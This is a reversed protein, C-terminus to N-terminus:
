QVKANAHKRTSWGSTEEEQLQMNAAEECGNAFDYTAEGSDYIDKRPALRTQTYKSDWINRSDDSYTLSRGEKLFCSSFRRLPEAQNNKSGAGHVFRELSSIKDIRSLSKPEKPSASDDLEALNEKNSNRDQPTQVKPEESTSDDDDM